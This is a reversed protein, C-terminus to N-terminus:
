IKDGIYRKIKDKFIARDFLLANERATQPKFRDKNSEFYEIARALSDATQEYFFVGTPENITELAGGKAYAIVPKGCAQAELPVIGFDEEGPFILAKCNAYYSAVEEDSLWGLFEINPGASAKLGAEIDGTGIIVLRKGSRKFAEIAIDIRKYPV